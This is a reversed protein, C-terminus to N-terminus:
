SAPRASKYVSREISACPAIRDRPSAAPDSTELPESGARVLEAVGVFMSWCPCCSRPIVPERSVLRRTRSTVSYITGVAMGAREAIGRVNIGMGQCHSAVLLRRSKLM